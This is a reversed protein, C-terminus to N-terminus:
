NLKDFENELIAREFRGKESRLYSELDEWVVAGEPGLQCLKLTRVM